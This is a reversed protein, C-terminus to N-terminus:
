PDEKGYNSALILLDKHDIKGNCDIDAEPIYNPDRCESGYASALLLLDKHNVKYDGNIDGPITVVVWGDIYTNDTTDTEHPLHTAEAKITYNGKAVDTTNWAFTVTTSNRSATTVKTQNIITLNAYITINFAETNIGYNIIKVRVGLIYGQGVVTKSTTINIIGIDHPGGYPKTLPYNDTNNTDIIYPHDWIGDSGTENQFSGKHIDVDAYGSWYNGGSPYGDDWLNGYSEIKSAHRSNGIFNNHFITNNSSMDLWVGYNNSAIKNETINNNNSYYYLYIGRASDAIINGSIRNKCSYEYFWIGYYNNRTITNGTINNYDSYSRLHVGYTNNAIANGIITNNCSHGSIWIGYHKNNAINNEAINNYNSFSLLYIGYTNNAVTNGVISNNCSYYNIWIGHTSNLVTNERLNNFNSSGLAIGWGSNYIVTNGSISNNCSNRDLYVGHYWNRSVNNRSISNHNSSYTLCIGYYGKNGTVDNSSISNKSSLDLHIGNGANGTITNGSVRNNSSSGDLYIGLNKNATITNASVNCNKVNRLKMGAYREVGCNRITFGTVTVNSAWVEVVNGVGSADIITAERSEGVLLIAKDVLVNEYYTGNRVCVTDGLNAANIAEQITHFDAPGDDDVVWALRCRALDDGGGAWTSPAGQWAYIHGDACGLRCGVYYGM